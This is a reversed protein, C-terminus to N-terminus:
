LGDLVELIELIQRKFDPLNFQTTNWVTTLNIERYDHILVDRFGAINKWPIEPYRLKLEVSVRKVVEGIVEFNRMVGDQILLSQFFIARGGEIYVQIREIRDIIDVLYDRDDIM